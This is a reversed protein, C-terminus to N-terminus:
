CWRPYSSPNGYTGVQNIDLTNKVVTTDQRPIPMGQILPKPKDKEKEKDVEEPKDVIIELDSESDSEDEGAM